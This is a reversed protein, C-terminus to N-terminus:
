ACPYSNALESSFLREKLQGVRQPLVTNDLHLRKGDQTFLATSVRLRTLSYGAARQRAAMKRLNFYGLDNILLSGPAM